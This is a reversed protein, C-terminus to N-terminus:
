QQGVHRGKGFGAVRAEVGDAPATDEHRVPRRLRDDVLESRRDRLHDRLGLRSLLECFLTGFRRAASLGFHGLRQAVVRPAEALQGLAEAHAHISLWEVVALPETRDITALSTGAVGLTLAGLSVSYVDPTFASPDVGTGRCRPGAIGGCSDLRLSFRPM